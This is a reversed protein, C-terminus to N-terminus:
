TVSKSERPTTTMATPATFNDAVVEEGALVARSSLMVVVQCTKTEYLKVIRGLSIPNVMTYLISNQPCPASGDRGVDWGNRRDPDISVLERLVYYEISEFLFVM